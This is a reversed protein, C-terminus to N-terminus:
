FDGIARKQQLYNMRAAHRADEDKAFVIKAYADRLELNQRKKLLTFYVADFDCRVSEDYDALNWCELLEIVRTLLPLPIKVNAPKNM